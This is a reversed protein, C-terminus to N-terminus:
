AYKLISVTKQNTLFEATGFKIHRSITVFFPIKNVFMIDASVTVKQYRSIISTPIDAMHIKVTSPTKRVTKGKLSGVDPGFIREAAIIDARTIPCNQLLNNDVISLFTKTSPRGITQQIKRALKAQSYDRQSYRISNGEVTNIMVVNDEGERTDLYYLGKDSQTFVRVTGDKKHLYFSNEDDSDFTVRYGRERVRALSLINAIGKPNYWVTGYGVLEGVLNTRTTGANCHINMTHAHERINRLLNKNSFVDVTSQNDLLIWEKPLRGDKGIQLAVGEQESKGDNLFSMGAHKEHLSVCGNDANILQFHIYDDQEEYDELTLLTTANKTIPETANEAKKDLTRENKCENAYHGKQQCRHCVIDAKSKKNKTSGDHNVFSIEGGVVDRLALCADHRWNALLHHAAALTIPYKNIGQLFNNEMDEILKGFRSRDASLIFATALSRERVDAYFSRLQAASMAAKTTNTEALIMEEVGKDSWVNGGSHEVVEVNNMFQMFFENTALRSGQCQTYFRRKAEFVNHPTYKQSQHHFTINKIAKLLALGDNNASMTSFGDEAELRQQLVETCQGWVLAFLQRLNHDLQDERRSLADLKKEWLKEVGKSSGAPPDEPVKFRPVTGTEIAIRTDGGMKYVRGVYGSIEKTTKAYMDAQKVNSCDYYFGKLADVKGEFKITPTLVGHPGKQFIYSRSRRDGNDKRMSGITGESKM